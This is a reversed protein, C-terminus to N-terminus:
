LPVGNISTSSIVYIDNLNSCTDSTSPILEYVLASDDEVLDINIDMIETVEISFGLEESNEFCLQNNESFSFKIGVEGTSGDLDIDTTTVTVNNRLRYLERDNLRIWTMFKMTIQDGSYTGAGCVEVEEICGSCNYMFRPVVYIGEELRNTHMQRPTNFVNAESIQCADSNSPPDTLLNTEAITCCDSSNHATNAIIFCQVPDSGLCDSTCCDDRFSTDLTLTGQTCVDRWCQLCDTFCVYRCVYTCWLQSVYRECSDSADNSM